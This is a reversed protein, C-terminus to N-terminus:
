RGEDEVAGGIADDRDVVAATEAGDEVIVESITEVPVFDSGRPVVVEEGAVVGPARNSVEQKAESSSVMPGFFEDRSLLINMEPERDPTAKLTWEKMRNALDVMRLSSPHYAIRYAAYLKRKAADIQNACLLAVGYNHLFEAMDYVALESLSETETSELRDVAKQCRGLKVDRTVEGYREDFNPWMEVNEWTPRTFFRDAFSDALEQAASIYEHRRIRHDTWLAQEVDLPDACPNCPDTLSGDRPDDEDVRKTTESTTEGLQSVEPLRGLMPYTWSPRLSSPDDRLRRLSQIASAGQNVRDSLNTLRGFFDGLRDREPKTDQPSRNGVYSFFLEQSGPVYTGESASSALVKGTDLDLLQLAAQMRVRKLERTAPDFAEECILVRGVIFMSAGLLEGIQIASRSNFDGAWQMDRERVIQRLNERTLIDYDTNEVLRRVLADKVNGSCPGQLGMIVIRTKAPVASKGVPELLIPIEVIDRELPQAEIASSPSDILNQVKTMSSSSCGVFTLLIFTMLAVHLISLKSPREIM